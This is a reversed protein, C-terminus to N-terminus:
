GSIDKLKKNFSDMNSELTGVAKKASKLNKRIKDFKDNGANDVLRQDALTQLANELNASINDMKSLDINESIVKSGTKIKKDVAVFDNYKNISDDFIVYLASKMRKRLKNLKETHETKKIKKISEGFDDVANVFDDKLSHVSKKSM